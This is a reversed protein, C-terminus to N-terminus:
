STGPKRDIRFQCDTNFRDITYHVTTPDSQYISELLGVAESYEAFLGQQQLLSMINACLLTPRLLSYHGLGALRAYAPWLFALFQEKSVRRFPRRSYARTVFAFLASDLLAGLVNEPYRKTMETVYAATLDVLKLGTETFSWRRSEVRQAIGVDVLWELRPITMQERRSGSGQKEIGVDIEQLIRQRTSELRNLQERESPSYASGTFREVMAGITPPVQSGADLYGFPADGFHSILAQCFPLLFDGDAALLNYLFFVQEGPALILPNTTSPRNFAELQESSMLGQSLVLGMDVPEYSATVLGLHEPLYEVYENFGLRSLWGTQSPHGYIYLKQLSISIEADLKTHENLGKLWVALGEDYPLLFRKEELNTRLADAMQRSTRAQESFALVAKCFGLRQM